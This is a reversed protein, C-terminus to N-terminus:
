LPPSRPKPPKPLGSPGREDSGVGACPQTPVFAPCVLPVMSRTHIDHASAEPGYAYDVAYEDDPLAEM